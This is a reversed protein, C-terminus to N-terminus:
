VDLVIRVRYVDADGARERVIELGHYTAAKVHALLVHRAPDWTGSRGVASLRAPKGEAAPRVTVRPATRFARGGMERLYLIEQLWAVLLEELDAAELEIVTEADPLVTDAEYLFQLLGLAANTFLEDLTRGRAVYALDATHDVPEFPVFGADDHM